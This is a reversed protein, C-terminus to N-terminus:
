FFYSYLMHSLKTAFVYDGGCSSQLEKEQLVQSREICRDRKQEGFRRDIGGNKVVM